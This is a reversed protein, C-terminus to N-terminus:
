IQKIAMDCVEEVGYMFKIINTQTDVTSTIEMGLQTLGQIISTESFKTAIQNITLTAAFATSINVFLVSVILVLSLMSKITKKM